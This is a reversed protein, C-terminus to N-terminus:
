SLVLQDSISIGEHIRFIIESLMPAVSLVELKPHYKELAIPLTNTVVLKDIRDDAELIKIASPLLVAHTICFSAKGEAGNEYLSDIQKLVSGSAILDDIIIPLRGRIDGVV